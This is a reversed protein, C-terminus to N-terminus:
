VRVMTGRAFEWFGDALTEPVVQGARVVEVREHQGTTRSAYTVLALMGAPVCARPEAAHALSVVETVAEHTWSEVPQPTKRPWRSPM